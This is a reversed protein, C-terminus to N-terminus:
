FYPTALGYIKMNPDHLWRIPKGQLKPIENKYFGNFNPSIECMKGILENIEDFPIETPMNM